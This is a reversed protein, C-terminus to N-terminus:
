MGRVGHWEPTLSGVAVRAAPPDSAHVRLFDREREQFSCSSFHTVLAALNLQQQIKNALRTDAQKGRHLGFNM